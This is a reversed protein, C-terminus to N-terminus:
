TTPGSQHGTPHAQQDPLRLAGVLQQAEGEGRQSGDVAVSQTKIQGRRQSWVDPKTQGQRPQQLGVM